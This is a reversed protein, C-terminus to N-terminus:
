IWLQRLLTKIIRSGLETTFKVDHGFFSRQFFVIKVQYLQLALRASCAMTFHVGFCLQVSHEEDFGFRVYVM